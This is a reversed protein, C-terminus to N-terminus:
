SPLLFQKAVKSVTSPRVALGVLAACGWTCHCSPRQQTVFARMAQGTILPYMSYNTDRINGISHWLPECPYVDGTEGLVLLKTGAECVTGMTRTSCVRQLEEDKVRKFSRFFMSHVDKTGPTKHISSTLSLYDELATQEDLGAEGANQPFALQLRDFDYKAAMEAFFPLLQDRNKHHYVVSLKIGLRPIRAKVERLADYTAMLKTYLGPVGRIADHIEAFGEFSLQIDLRTNPNEQLINECAKAARDPFSGNTPIDIIPPKSAKALANVICAIDKRLFPEGGSISLKVLPGLQLGIREFEAASLEKSKRTPDAIQTGYLCYPCAANCRSTVFAHLFPPFVGPAYLALGQKFVAEARERVTRYWSLSM